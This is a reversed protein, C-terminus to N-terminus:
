HAAAPAPKNIAPRPIPKLANWSREDKRAAGSRQDKRAREAKPEAAPRRCLSPANTKSVRCKNRLACARGRFRVPSNDKTGQPVPTNRVLAQWIGRRLSFLLGSVRRKAPHRKKTTCPRRSVSARLAKARRAQVVRRTDSRKRTPRWGAVRLARRSGPRRRLSLPTQHTEKVAPM